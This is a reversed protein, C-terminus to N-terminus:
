VGFLSEGFPDRASRPSRNALRLTEAGKLGCAMLTAWPQRLTLAKM